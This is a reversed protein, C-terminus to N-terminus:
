HTFTFLSCLIQSRLSTYQQCKDVIYQEINRVIYQVSTFRGIFYTNTHLHMRFYITVKLIDLLIDYANQFHKTSAVNKNKAM